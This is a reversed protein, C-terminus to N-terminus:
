QKKGFNVKIVNDCFQNKLEEEVEEIMAEATLKFQISAAGKDYVDELDERVAEMIGEQIIMAPNYDSDDEYTKDTTDYATLTFNEDDLPKLIIYYRDPLLSMMEVQKQIEIDDTMKKGVGYPYVRRGM